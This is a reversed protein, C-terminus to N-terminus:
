SIKSGHTMALSKITHELKFVEEDVFGFYYKFDSSM